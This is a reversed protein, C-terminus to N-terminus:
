LSRSRLAWGLAVPARLLQEGPNGLARQGRMVWVRVQNVDILHGLRSVRLLEELQDALEVQGPLHHRRLLELVFLDPSGQGLLHWPRREQPVKGYERAEPDDGGHLAPPCAVPHVVDALSRGDM